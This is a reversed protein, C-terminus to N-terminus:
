SLNSENSNVVILLNTNYPVNEFIIILHLDHWIV